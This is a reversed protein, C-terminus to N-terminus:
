NILYEFYIKNSYSSTKFNILAVVSVLNYATLSSLSTGTTANWFKVIGNINGSMLIDGGLLDLCRIECTDTLTNLTAGTNPNWIIITADKSGSALNGNSLLKLTNVQFRHGILTYLCTGTKFNWIKVSLDASGSAMLNGGLRELCTVSKKHSFTQKLIAAAPNTIDWIKITMDASASVLSGDNLLKLDNVSGIHGSVTGLAISTDINWIVVASGATAAIMYSNIIEVALITTPNVLTVLPASLSVNWVKVQKNGNATILRGDDFQKMAVINKTDAVTVVIKNSYENWINM